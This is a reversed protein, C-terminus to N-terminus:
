PGMAKISGAGRQSRGPPDAARKPARRSQQVRLRDPRVCTSDGACSLVTQGAPLPGHALEYAVRPASVLKGDVRVQGVGNAASAGLWRHHEGSRDIKAEFRVPDVAM